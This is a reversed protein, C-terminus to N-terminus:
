LLAESMFNVESVSLPFYLVILYKFDFVGM